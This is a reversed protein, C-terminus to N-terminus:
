DHACDLSPIIELMSFRPNRCCMHLTFRSGELPNGVHIALVITGSNAVKEVTPLDPLNQSTDGNLSVGMYIYQKPGTIHVGVVGCLRLATRSAPSGGRCGRHNSAGFTTSRLCRRKPPLTSPLHPPKPPPLEMTSVPLYSLPQVCM